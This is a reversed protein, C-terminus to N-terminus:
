MRDKGTGCAGLIAAVLGEATHPDAEADPERGLDRLRASTAPGI